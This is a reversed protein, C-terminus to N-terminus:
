SESFYSVYDMWGTLAYREDDTVVASGPCALKIAGSQEMPSLASRVHESLRGMLRPMDAPVVLHIRYNARGGRSGNLLVGSTQRVVCYPSHCLGKKEGPDYAAVGAARLAAIIEGSKNM